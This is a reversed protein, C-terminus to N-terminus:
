KDAAATPTDSPPLNVLVMQMGTKKQPFSVL